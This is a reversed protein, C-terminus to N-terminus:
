VRGESCVSYTPGYGLSIGLFLYILNQSFYQGFISYQRWINLPAAFYKYAMVVLSLLMLWIQFYLFSVMKKKLRNSGMWTETLVQIRLQCRRSQFRGHIMTSFVPRFFSTAMWVCAVRDRSGGISSFPSLNLNVFQSLYFASLYHKWGNSGGRQSCFM